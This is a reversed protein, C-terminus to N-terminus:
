ANSGDMGLACGEDASSAVANWTTPSNWDREAFRAEDLFAFRRELRGRIAVSERWTLAVCPIRRGYSPSYHEEECRVEVDTAWCLFFHDGGAELLWARDGVRSPSVGPALHLHWELEHRGRGLFRDVVLISRLDVAARFVREHEVAAPLRTYGTHSGRIVVGGRREELALEPSKGSQFLRFLWDPRLENQEEGDIRVTSHYGTSRFRNRADPSSTYVFSGPDVILPRGRVHLEFGLQDNHKHNGFGNTGVPGNTVLLYGGDSRHVAVGAAPWLRTVRPLLTPVGRPPELGWWEAEWAGEEDMYPAWRPNGFVGVAPGFLHRPDGHARAGYGSLIHLRGDDADGVQPMLGDPRLTGALYDLMRALCADYEDGYAAGAHATLHAAALFMETVLRHYPISSEFDAGDPLVQKQMESAIESRAFTWWELGPDLDRFIAGAFLLGLLNSLYHNSTVEYHNELHTRVFTAQEFLGAYAEERVSTPIADHHQLLEIAIAWSVARLAVDMTCAWQVGVGVPNAERFDEMQRFIEAAFRGEGCLLTAQALIPWHQVRGLEWPAKVDAGKPAMSALEWTESSFGHPFRLGSRPDLLWDIPQYGDERAPRTPDVPVFPGSGLLDFRHRCIREAADRVAAAQEPYAELLREIRDAASLVYLRGAPEECRMAWWREFDLGRTQLAEQMRISGVIAETPQSRREPIRLRRRLAAILRGL